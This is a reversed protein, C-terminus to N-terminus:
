MPGTDPLGPRESAMAALEQQIGKEGMWDEQITRLKVSKGEPLKLHNRQFEKAADEKSLAPRKKKEGLYYLVAERRAARMPGHKKDNLEVALRSRAQLDARRQAEDAIAAQAKAAAHAQATAGEQEKQWAAYAQSMWIFTVFNPPALKVLEDLFESCKLDLRNACIGILGSNDVPVLVHWPPPEPPTYPNSNHAPGTGPLFLPLDLWPSGTYRKSLEDALVEAVEEMEQAMHPDIGRVPRLIEEATYVGMGPRKTAETAHPAAVEEKARPFEEPLPLGSEVAWAGFQRLNVSCFARDQNWTVPVIPGGEGLNAEAIRLRRVFEVPTRQPGLAQGANRAFGRLRDLVSFPEPEVGVSLAVAQWLDVSPVLEWTPWDAPKFTAV